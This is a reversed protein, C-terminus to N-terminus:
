STIGGEQDIVPGGELALLHEELVARPTVRLLLGVGALLVLADDLYGIVPIFDPIVDVPMALYLVLAPLVLRAVLPVRRDHWLGAALRLKAGWPLRAVRRVLVRGEARASRALLWIGALALLAAGVAVLLWGWGPMLAATPLNTM